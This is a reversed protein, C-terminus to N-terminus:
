GSTTNCYHYLDVMYKKAKSPSDTQDDKCKDQRGFWSDKCYCDHSTSAPDTTDLLSCAWANQLAAGSCADTEYYYTYSTGCPASNPHVCNTNVNCGWGKEPDYYASTTKPQRCVGTGTIAAMETATLEQIGNASDTTGQGLALILVLAIATSPFLVNWKTKM